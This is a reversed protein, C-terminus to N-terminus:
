REGAPRAEIVPDVPDVPASGGAATRLWRELTLVAWLRAGHEVSGEQHEAWLRRLLAQDLYKGSRADAALM